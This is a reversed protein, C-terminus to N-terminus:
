PCARWCPSAKHLGTLSPMDTLIHCCFLRTPQSALLWCEDHFAMMVTLSSRPRWFWCNTQWPMLTLILYLYLLMQRGIWYMMTWEPIIKHTLRRLWCHWQMSPCRNTKKKEYAHWSGYNTLWSVADEDASHLRSLGGNLKTLPCYEVIHFMTQTEGCPCLDTDTFWWKRMCAGCHGQETRFRKLLSLQQSSLICFHKKLSRSIYNVSQIDFTRIRPLLLFSTWTHWETNKM